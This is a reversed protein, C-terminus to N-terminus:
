TCVGNSTLFDNLADVCGACPCIGTAGSAVCALVAEVQGTGIGAIICAASAVVNACQFLDCDAQAAFSIFNTMDNTNVSQARTDLSTPSASLTAAFLSVLPISFRM